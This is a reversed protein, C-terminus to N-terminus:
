DSWVANLCVLLGYSKSVFEAKKPLVIVIKKFIWNSWFSELGSSSSQGSTSAIKNFYCSVCLLGGGQISMSPDGVMWTFVLLLNVRRRMDFSTLFSCLCAYMKEIKNWFKRRHKIAFRKKEFKLPIRLLWPKSIM